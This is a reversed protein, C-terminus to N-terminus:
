NAGDNGNEFFKPVEHGGEGREEGMGAARVFVLEERAANEEREVRHGNHAALRGGGVEGIGGGGDDIDAVLVIGHAVVEIMVLEGFIV